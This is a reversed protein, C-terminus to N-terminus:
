HDLNWFESLLGVEAFIAAAEAPTFRRWDPARRDPGYWVQALQWCQALSLVEGRSLHWDHLWKNLHAESRFVLM